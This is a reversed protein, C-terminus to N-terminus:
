RYLSKAGRIDDSRLPRDYWFEIPRRNCEGPTGTGDFTPNMLACTGEEHGLGLVHGFEHTAVLGVLRDDNCGQGILVRSQAGGIYGAYAAGGCRDTGARSVVDASQRTRAKRFVIGVKASNWKKAAYQM